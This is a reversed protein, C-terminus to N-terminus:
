QVRWDDVSGPMVDATLIGSINIRLNGRLVEFTAITQKSYPEDKHEADHVKCYAEGSEYIGCGAYVQGGPGDTWVRVNYPTKSLPRGRWLVAQPLPQGSVSVWESIGPDTKVLAAPGVQEWQIRVAKPPPPEISMPAGADFPMAPVPAEADQTTNAPATAIPPDPDIAERTSEKGLIFAFAVAMVVVAGMSIGLLIKETKM